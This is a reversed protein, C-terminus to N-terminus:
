GNFFILRNRSARIKMLVNVKLQKEKESVMMMMRVIFFCSFAIMTCVSIALKFIEAAPDSWWETHPFQQIYMQPFKKTEAWKEIKSYSENINNNLLDVGGDRSLIFGFVLIQQLHLFGELYYDLTKCSFTRWVYKARLYERDSTDKDNLKDYFAAKSPLYELDLKQANVMYSYPFVGKQRILNFVKPDTFYKKSELFDDNTLSDSLAQLSGPLFRCSDIFRM